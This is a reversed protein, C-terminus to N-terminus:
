VLIQLMVVKRHSFEDPSILLKWDITQLLRLNERVFMRMTPRTKVDESLVNHLRILVAVWSETDYTYDGDVCAHIALNVFAAFVFMRQFVTSSYFDLYQTTEKVLEIWRDFLICSYVLTDETTMSDASIAFLINLSRLFTIVHTLNSICLRSAISRVVSKDDAISELPMKADKIGLM